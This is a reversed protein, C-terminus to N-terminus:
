KVPFYKKRAALPCKREWFDNATPEASKFDITKKM